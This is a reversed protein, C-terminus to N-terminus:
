DMRPSNLALALPYVALCGAQRLLASAVTFTWRSDVMDDILLCPSYSKPDLNVRFVGDLNRAQQFSNEMEKQPRNDRIKEICNIFPLDLTNALREAFDPVL